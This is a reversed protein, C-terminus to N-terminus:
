EGVSSDHSISLQRMFLLEKYRVRRIVSMYFPMLLSLVDLEFFSLCYFVIYVMITLPEM